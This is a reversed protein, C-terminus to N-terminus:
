SPLPLDPLDPMPMWHTVAHSEFTKCGDPTDDMGVPLYTLFIEGRWDNKVVEVMAIIVGDGWKQPVHILVVDGANPTQESVAIWPYREADARMSKIDSLQKAFFNTREFEKELRERLAACERAYVDRDTTLSSIQQQLLNIVRLRDKTEDDNM